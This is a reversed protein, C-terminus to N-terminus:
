ALGLLERATQQASETPPEASLMVAIEHIREEESIRRIHSVTADEEIQKYVKLHCSAAAAMQPLHTITIVQMSQSMGAIITAMQSAVQGSIGTDIEDFLITPLLAEKATLSKLALMLRSLEGGSIVKGMERLEGGRNANFLFTVRDCGSAKYESTPIVQVELRAEKMGLQALIPLVQEQLMAASRQRLATLQEAVQQVKAFAKDVAEMAKHIETDMNAIVQLKTDLEDRIAILDAVTAVSHKKQLRYILDLREDVQQQREPSYNIQDNFSETESLIDRLEILCSDMRQSLQEADPHCSAIKSLQSRSSAIRAVASDEGNGGDCLNLVSVLTEKISEANALLNSEQELEEQEGDILNAQVLEDYQFQMYDQEKRAQADAATLQELQHKLRLYEAYAVSYQALIARGGNFSDLLSTQFDSNALTLTEHQSHIDLLHSGLEKMVPLSVPSDNVFARSKASPLIERRLILTQDYDLDQEAFFSELNLGALNFTAEVVCKRDKDHLVNCDARQGMLLGLAGLIISKGAGTEGTIATMGQEPFVIDSQRILAYNEIHLSTLM